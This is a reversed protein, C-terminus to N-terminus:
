AADPARSRVATREAPGDKRRKRDRSRVLHNTLLEFSHSNLWADKSVQDYDVPIRSTFV